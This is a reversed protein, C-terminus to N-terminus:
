QVVVPDGLAVVGSRVVTAYLGFNGDLRRTIQRLLSPRPEIGQQAMTVMVCRETPVAVELEATGICLRRAAWEDGNTEAEVVVNPRFRRVELPEGVEDAFSALAGTTILHVPAADLHPVASEELLRVEEGVVAGIALATEPDTVQWRDGDCPHVWVTGDGATEARFSLLGAMRRFRRTTKGSGLKGDRGVVAWRRDGVVGRDDLHLVGVREGGISKVPYRWLADVRGAPDGAADSATERTTRQATDSRAGIGDM